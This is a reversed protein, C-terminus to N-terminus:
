FWGQTVSTTKMKDHIRSKIQEQLDRGFKEGGTDMMTRVREPRFKSSHKERFSSVLIM